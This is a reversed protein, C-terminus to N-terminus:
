KALGIEEATVLLHFCTEVKHYPAFFRCRPRFYDAPPVYLEGGPQWPPCGCGPLREPM